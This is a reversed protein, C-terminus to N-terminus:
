NRVFLWSVGRYLGIGVYGLVGPKVREKISVSVTSYAILNDYRNLRGKLLEITQNVRQLEREISLIEDVTNARSLLELYRNRTREANELRISLDAYDETVDQGRMEQREVKGMSSIHSMVEDLRATDVRLIVRFNNTESVYGNYKKALGEVESRVKAPEDVSLTIWANYIMKREQIELEETIEVNTRSEASVYSANYGPSSSACSVVTLCLMLLLAQYLHRM